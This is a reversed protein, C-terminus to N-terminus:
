PLCSSYWLQASRSICECGAAKAREVAEVWKKQLDKIEETKLARPKPYHPDFAIDSPGVVNDPWGGEEATAVSSPDGNRYNGKIDQHVWPAYTSAKRGAHALQIGALAGQSHIFNVIRKLPEIHKVDWIGSDEPSIRGEPVVATAEVM